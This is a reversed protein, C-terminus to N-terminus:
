GGSSIADASVDRDNYKLQNTVHAALTVLIKFM